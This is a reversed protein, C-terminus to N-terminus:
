FLESVAVAAHGAVRTMCRPDRATKPTMQAHFCVAFHWIAVVLAAIGSVKSRVIILHDAVVDKHEALVSGDGAVPHRRNPRARGHKDARSILVAFPEIVLLLGNRGLAKRPLGKVGMHRM